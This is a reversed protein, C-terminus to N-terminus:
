EGRRNAVARKKRRKQTPVKSEHGELWRAKLKEYMYLAEDYGVFKINVSYWFDDEKVM